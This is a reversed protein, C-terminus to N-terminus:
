KNRIELLEQCIQKLTKLNKIDLWEKYIKDLDLIDNKIEIIEACKIIEM